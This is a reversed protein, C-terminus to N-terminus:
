DLLIVYVPGHNGALRVWSRPDKSPDPVLTSWNFRTGYNPTRVWAVSDQDVVISGIDPEPDSSTLTQFPIVNEKDSM